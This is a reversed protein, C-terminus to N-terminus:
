FWRGILYLIIIGLVIASAILKWLAVRKFMKLFNYNLSRIAFIISIIAFISVLIIGMLEKDPYFCIFGCSEPSLFWLAASILLYAVTFKIFKNRVSPSTFIIFLTAVSFIGVSILIVKVGSVEYGYKCNYDSIKCLGVSESVLFLLGVITLLISIGWALLFLYKSVRMNYLKLM